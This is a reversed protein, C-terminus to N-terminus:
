LVFDLSKLSHLMESSTQVSEDGGHVVHAHEIIRNEFLSCKLYHNNLQNLNEIRLLYSCLGTDYFYLKPRKALRRNFNRHHPQLLM